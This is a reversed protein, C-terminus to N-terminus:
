NFQDKLINSVTSPIAGNPIAFDMVFTRLLELENPNDRLHWYHVNIVMPLNKKQCFYFMKKLYEISLLSCANLELHDSYDLIGPYPIQHFVRTFLRKIYNKCNKPTFHREFAIPVIGSYHLNNEVVSDLCELSIKNQPAVFCTIEYDLTESLCKKFHKIENTLLNQDRRWRLEPIYKGDIFRCEHNIGHLLVDAKGRKIQSKLWDCLEINQIFLKPESNNKTDPCLNRASVNKVAPVIAFSIPFENFNQYINKIDEVKTFFNMDDDRLALKVM